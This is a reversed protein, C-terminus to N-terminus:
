CIRWAPRYSRGPCGTTTRSGATPAKRTAKPLREWYHDVEEQTEYIVQFSVAEDFTVQPGGKIGVFRQGGLDFEITMVTGAPAPGAETYHTVNVIGSRDRVTAWGM